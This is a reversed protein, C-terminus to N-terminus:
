IGLLKTAIGLWPALTKFIEATTQWLSKGAESTENLVKITEGVQKLNETMLSKNPQEKGAERKAAKLYDIAEEKVASDVPTSDIALKLKELLAVIEAGSMGQQQNEHITQTQTLDRGASGVQVNSNQINLDKITQNPVLSKKTAM